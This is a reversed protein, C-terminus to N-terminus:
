EHGAPRVSLAERGVAQLVDAIADRDVQALAVFDAQVRHTGGAEPECAIIRAMVPVPRAGLMLEIELVAGAPLPTPSALTLGRASVNLLRAGPPLSLPGHSGTEPMGDYPVPEIRRGIARSILPRQLRRSTPHGRWKKWSIRLAM